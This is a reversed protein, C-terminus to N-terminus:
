GGVGEGNRRPPTLLHTGLRMARQRPDNDDDTRGRGTPLPGPPLGGNATATRGIGCAWHWMGGNGVMLEGRGAM